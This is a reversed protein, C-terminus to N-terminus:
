GHLPEDMAKFAVEPMIESLTPHAHITEALDKVRCGTRVALTAEAILDSAHPGIMHVGLIKGTEANSVIKAQGAIEGMVQAKGMSRFFVSDARVPYGQGNAQIETLGVDAVEPMTFIASPVTEYNMTRSRGTANGAAVRAEAYAVHALMVKEPGLADGIAFVGPAGTEMRSDAMIWGRDDTRVGLKGLGIGATNPTRGICALVMDVDASVAAKDKDKLNEAVLSPGIDVRLKGANEDVREVTRNVMFNIKRKKMERQLVKSCDSDVSPLPLLRPLAEVVTVRSGLASLIFAFECGIVGGGVIMISEPVHDLTLADNSSIIRRGDFPFAPINLPESGTALILRDYPVELSTGDVQRVVIRKPGKIYGTGKLLRVNRHDLLNRIGKVQDSVVKQQRALLQQMDVVPKGTISIGFEAARHFHEMMEATTKMIKSPICGRNLCTGGVRDQEVLTVDAGMQAASVAAVYGGPGGGIVALKTTMQDKREKNCGNEALSLESM